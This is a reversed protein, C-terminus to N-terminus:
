KTPVSESALLISHNDCFIGALAGTMLCALTAIFLAKWAVAAIDSKRDPALATAGGVYIALSPLHAFGCLAYAAIVASRPEIANEALLKSLTFYAPVETAIMRIGLLNAVTPVDAWPVGMLWVFPYFVYALVEQISWGGCWGLFLNAIALLGVVAILMTTIGVIMKFGVEGGALIAEVLSNERDYHPEVNVGLTEPTETEPVALKALL